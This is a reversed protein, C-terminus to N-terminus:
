QPPPPPYGAAPPQSPYSGSPAPYAPPAYGGQPAPAYGGQPPPAYGSPPPPPYPHPQPQAHYPIAQGPVLNGKAYMCQEYSINYRQQLTYNSQASKNAGVASGAVMGIGAGVGAGQGSQGILAGAAAGLATGVAASGLAQENAQNQPNPGLSQSAYSRCYQDESAFVEFPKGPAPMVRVTPADPVTACGALALAGLGLATARKLPHM